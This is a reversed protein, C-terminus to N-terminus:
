ETWYKQKNLVDSCIVRGQLTGIINKKLEQVMWADAHQPPIPYPAELNHIGAPSFGFRQYYDPYGLVFVLDTEMEALRALGDRILQGGIGHGQMKPVVAMPALISARLNVEAGSISVKTFLIYGVPQGDLIAILSLRPEASPDSLLDASLLAEDNQGFANQQVAIIADLDDDTTQRITIDTPM